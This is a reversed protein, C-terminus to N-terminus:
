HVMPQPEGEGFASMMLLEQRDGQRGVPGAAPTTLGATLLADHPLGGM